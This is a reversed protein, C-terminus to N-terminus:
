PRGYLVVQENHWRADSAAFGYTAPDEGVYLLAYDTRTTPLRPAITQGFSRDSEGYQRWDRLWYALADIYAGTRNPDAAAAGLALTTGPRLHDRLNAPPNPGRRAIRYVRNAGFDAVRVFEAPYLGAALGATSRWDFEQAQAGSLHERHIAALPVGLAWLSDLSRPCPFCSEMEETLAVWAKPRVTRAGNPTRLWYTTNYYQNLSLIAVNRPGRQRFLMPYEIVVTDRPQTALWSYLPPTDAGTSLPLLSLPASWSELLLLGAPLLVALRRLGRRDTYASVQAMGLGALVALGLTGLAMIRTVVRMTPVGPVLQYLLWYPLPWTPASTFTPVLQPGFALVLTTITLLAYFGVHRTWAARGRRRWAAIGAVLALAPAILGPFLSREWPWPSPDTFPALLTKYLPNGMYVALWGPLTATYRAIDALERHYGGAQGVLYGVALPLCLIGAGGLAPVLRGLFAWTPRREALGYFVVFLGIAGLTYFALYHSSLAQLTFLGGVMGAGRWTPHQWLRHLVLLLLPLWQVNLITLHALNNFRFFSFAFAIGAVIGAPSSGSLERVLLWTGYGCLLFSLLLLLNYELIANGTLWFIPAGLLAPTFDLEDYALTGQFPYMVTADFLHLPNTALAHAQWALNYASTLSDGYDIAQWWLHSTLPWTTAVSLGLFLLLVALHPAM